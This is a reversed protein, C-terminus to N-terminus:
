GAPQMFTTVLIYSIFILILGFLSWWLIKKAKEINEEQAVGTVYLFGAYVIGIFALIAAYPLFFQIWGLILLMLNSSTGLKADDLKGKVQTSKLQEQMTKVDEGFLTDDLDGASVPPVVLFIISFFCLSLGFTFIKQLM